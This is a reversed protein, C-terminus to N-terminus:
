TRLANITQQDVYAPYDDRLLNAGSISATEHRSEEVLLILIEALRPQM